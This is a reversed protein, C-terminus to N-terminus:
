ILKGAAPWAEVHRANLAALAAIRARDDILGALGEAWADRSLPLLMGSHREDEGPRYVAAANTLLAAGMRYADIRKTPARARNATTDLLPALL